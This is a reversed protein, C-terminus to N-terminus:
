FICWRMTFLHNASRANRWRRCHPHNCYMIKSTVEVSCKRLPSKCLLCNSPVVTLGTLFACVLERLTNCLMCSNSSSNSVMELPVFNSKRLFALFDSDQTRKRNCAALLAEQETIPTDQAVVASDNQKEAPRVFPPAFEAYLSLQIFLSLLSMINGNAHICVPIFITVGFTSASIFLVTTWSRKMRVQM